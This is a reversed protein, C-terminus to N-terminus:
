SAKAFVKLFESPSVIKIGEYEKLKLLHKKDGTIIYDAEGVVACSLIENDPSYSLAKIKKKPEIYTSIDSILSLNEKIEEETYNFKKDLVKATEILISLSVVNKIKREIVLDLVEDCVGGFMEASIFVNTDICVKIV